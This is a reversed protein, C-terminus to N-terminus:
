YSYNANPDTGGISVGGSNGVVAGGSTGAVFIGFNGAVLDFNTGNGSATNRLFINGTSDADIGRGNSSLNNGEIRNDTGTVHIGALTNNDLVCGSVLSRNTVKIGDGICYNVTCNSITSYGGSIGDGQCNNVVCDTVTCSDIFLIGASTTDGGMVHCGQILSCCGVRIAAVNSGVGQTFDTTCNRIVNNYAANLGYDGLVDILTLDEFLCGRSSGLVVGGQTWGRVHGNRVCIGSLLGASQDMIAALASGSGSLTFGNLDITVDSAAIAIGNKAASVDVNGTLYYSGKQSIVFQSTADGPTNTANIAIRPEVESLTKYTSSVAGSPPNLPGAVVVWAVSGVALSILAVRRALRLGNM